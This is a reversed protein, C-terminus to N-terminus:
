TGKHAYPEHVLAALLGDGEQNLMAIAHMFDVNPRRRSNSNQYLLIWCDDKSHSFRRVCEIPQNVVM